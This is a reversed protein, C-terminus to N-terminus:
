ITTSGIMVGCQPATTRTSDADCADAIATRQNNFAINACGTQYPDGACADISPAGTAVLATCDGATPDNNECARAVNVRALLVSSHDRALCNTLEWANVDMACYVDRATELNTLFQPDSSVRNSCNSSFLLNNANKLCATDKQEGTCGFQANFPMDDCVSTAVFGGAYSGFDRTRSTTFVALVGEQGIIGRLNTATVVRGGVALITRGTVLKGGSAIEADITITNSTAVGNRSLIIATADLNTVGTNVDDFSIMLTFNSNEFIQLEKGTGAGQAQWGLAIRGTWEATRRTTDIPAGLDSGSLLGAYSKLEGNVMASAIAIGDASDGVLAGDALTLTVESSALADFGVTLGSGSGAILSADDDDQSAGGM